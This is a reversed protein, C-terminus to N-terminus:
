HNGLGQLSPTSYITRQRTLILINEIGNLNFGNGSGEDKAQTGKDEKVSNM